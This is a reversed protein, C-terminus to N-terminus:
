ENREGELEKLEREKIDAAALYIAYRIAAVESVLIYHKRILKIDNRQRGTVQISLTYTKEDEYVIPEKM